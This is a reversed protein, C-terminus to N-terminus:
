RSSRKKKSSKKEKKETLTTDLHEKPPTKSLDYLRLETTNDFDVVRDLFILKEKITLRRYGDLLISEEHTRSTQFYREVAVGLLASLLSAVLLIAGTKLSLRNLQSQLTGTMEIHAKGLAKARDLSDDLKHNSHKLAETFTSTQVRLNKLLDEQSQQLQLREELLNHSAQLIQQLAQKRLKDDNDSWLAMSQQIQSSLKQLQSLADKISLLDQQNSEIAHLFIDDLHPEDKPLPLKKTEIDDM